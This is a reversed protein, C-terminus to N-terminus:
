NEFGITEPVSGKINLKGDTFTASDVTMGASQLRDQVFGDVFDQNHATWDNPVSVPGVKLDSMGGDVQGNKIGLDGKYYFSPNVPVLNAKDAILSKYKEPLHTATSYANFRNAIFRGTMEVSGDPNIRLQVDSVPYNKWQSSPQNLLATLESETLQTDLAKKGSINLSAVPDTSSVLSNYHIGLKANVSELDAKTYKVGLDQPTTASIVVGVVGLVIIGVIVLLV